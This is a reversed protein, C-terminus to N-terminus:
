ARLTRPAGRPRARAARDHASSLRRARQRLLRARDLDEDAVREAEYAVFAYSYTTFGRCGTLLLGRHTPSEALLSETLKLGFPLAGGVLEIDDDTEYVSDGTALANGVTNIALKRASCGTGMVVIAALCVCAVLPRGDPSRTGGQVRPSTMRQALLM